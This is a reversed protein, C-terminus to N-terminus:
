PGTNGLGTGAEWRKGGWDTGANFGCAALCLGGPVGSDM